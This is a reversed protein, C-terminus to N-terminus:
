ISEVCAVICLLVIMVCVCMYFMDVYDYSLGAITEAVGIFSSGIFAMYCFCTPALAHVLLEAESGWKLVEGTVFAGLEGHSAEVAISLPLGYLEM